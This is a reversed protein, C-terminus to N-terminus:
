ARLERAAPQLKARLEEDDISPGRVVELRVLQFAHMERSVTLCWMRAAM